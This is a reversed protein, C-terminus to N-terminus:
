GGSWPTSCTSRGCASPIARPRAAWTGPQSRRGDGSRDGDPCLQRGLTARPRQGGLRVAGGGCPDHDHVLGDTLVEPACSELVQHFVMADDMALHQPEVEEPDESYEEGHFELMQFSPPLTLEVQVDRAAVEVHRVFGEGLSRSAEAQSDLFVYAGRGADTVVDMLRDNYNWPDGVGVGLLYIAEGDADDAHEAIMAEATTGVNAGGDSILVVRNILAEDFTSRALEYSRELGQDFNTTGYAEIGGCRALLTPDDPGDVAYGELEVRPDGGWTVLSVRDGARLAGAMARCAARARDLGTEGELGWGMSSSSDVAITLNVSRREDADIRPAQVGIQLNFVGPEDERMALHVGM